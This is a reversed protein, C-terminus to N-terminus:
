GARKSRLVNNRGGPPPYTFYGVRIHESGDYPRQHERVYLRYLNQQHQQM